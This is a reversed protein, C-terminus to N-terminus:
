ESLMPGLVNAEIDLYSQQPTTNATVTVRKTVLQGQQGEKPRFIVDMEGFEGPMIPEEPKNPVTCGCSATASEIVLPANGTNKFRFTYLNESPYRVTGFNHKLEVYEISTTGLKNNNGQNTMEAEGTAPSSTTMESTSGEGAVVSSTGENVQNADDQGGCALLTLIIASGIIKKM